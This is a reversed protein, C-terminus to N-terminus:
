ASCLSLNFNFKHCKSAKDANFLIFITNELRYNKDKLSCSGTSGNIVISVM